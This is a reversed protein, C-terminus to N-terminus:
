YSAFVLQGIVAVMFWLGAAAKLAAGAFNQLSRRKQLAANNHTHQLDRGLGYCIIV